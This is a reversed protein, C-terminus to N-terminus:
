ERSAAIDLVRTSRVEIETIASFPQGTGRKDDAEVIWPLPLADTNVTIRHMGDIVSEFRYHGAQDTRVAQIGDLIVVVGPVGAESPERVRNDNADLFVRGELNGVGGVPFQRMGLAGQPRGASVSYRLTLYGARLHFSSRQLEDVQGQTLGLPSSGFVPLGYRTTLNSTSDTYSASLSWNSSLRATAVITASFAEGQQSSLVGLPGGTSDLPGYISTASSTANSNYAVTADLSVGPLPAAGASIAVGYSNDKESLRGNQVDPSAGSQRRHEYSVQTSLRSGAPFFAPLSWNQDFGVRYLDLVSDHGWGAEARSTGLGTSFDVFGLVQTSTKGNAVRLSSNLGVSTTFTLQRRLDGNVIVGSSGNGDVSDVADLNITWRWRQTSSSLRYYAGYANNLVASTGWTLNPDFYYIGGSHVTRGSRLSADVLAGAANGDRSFIDPVASSGTRNSWIANAQVRMNGEVFALTGFMGQTSVKPVSYAFPGTQLIVAYPDRTDEVAIAQVGASWHPSLEVQGGGSIALGSLGTFNSLRLGGLLGPEGVSLNVSTYPVPDNSSQAPSVKRYGNVTLAAGMIPSVPLYFRTQRRVLAIMPTTVTGLASDALWGDGLPLERSTLTVSGNWDNSSSSGLPGGQSGRRLQADVGLTGFNQTQYRGSVSIGAEKQVSDLQSTDVGTIRSRPSIRSGGLEVTLSRINGGSKRGKGSDETVSAQLTGGGILRDVYPEAATGRDDGTTGATTGPQARAEAAQSACLALLALSGFRGLACKRSFGPNAANKM